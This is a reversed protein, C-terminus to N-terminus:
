LAGVWLVLAILHGALLWPYAKVMRPPYCRPIIAQEGHGSDELDEEVVGAEVTRGRGRQERREITIVDVLVDARVRDAHAVPVAVRELAHREVGVIVRADVKAKTGIAAHAPPEIVM